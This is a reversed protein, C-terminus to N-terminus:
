ICKCTYGHALLLMQEFILIFTVEDTGAGAGAFLSQTLALLKVTLTFQKNVLPVVLPAVSSRIGSGLQSGPFMLSTQYVKLLPGFVETLMVTLKTVAEQIPISINVAQPVKAGPIEKPPTIPLQSQFVDAGM